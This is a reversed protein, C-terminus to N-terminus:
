TVITMISLVGVLTWKKKEPWNQPNELDSPGDWDVVDSDLDFDENPQRGTAAKETEDGERTSPARESDVITPTDYDSEGGPTSLAKEVDAFPNPLNGGGPVPTVPADRPSRSSDTM